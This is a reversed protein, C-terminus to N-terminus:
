RVILATEGDSRAQIAARRAAETRCHISVSQGGSHRALANSRPLDGGDATCINDNIRDRSVHAEDEAANVTDRQASCRKSDCEGVILNVISRGNSNVTVLLASIAQLLGGGGDSAPSALAGASASTNGSAEDSADL